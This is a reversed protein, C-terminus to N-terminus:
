FSPMTGGPEFCETGLPTTATPTLAVDDLRLWQLASVPEALTAVTSPYFGVAANAWAKTTAARMAYTNLPQGPPVWFTCALVDSFNSDVLLVTVRQRVNSSSGMRFTLGLGRDAPIATNTYQTLAGGPGTRVFELVGGTVQTQIGTVTMFWPLINGTGFTGNTLLTAPSGGGSAPATPDICDTRRDAGNSPVSTIPVYQMAVNDLLYYGAGTTTVAAAYFSITADTWVKTSHTKMRYTALPANPELTFTCVALDSFDASHILVSMRKRTAFTSGIQFTADLPGGTPVPIGTQQFVVAQTGPRYFRFVGGTVDSVMDNNPSYTLWNTTGSGFTGNRVLTTTNVGGNCQYLRVNDVAWGDSGYQDDTGIRWRFRVSQGSLSSLNLRTGTYGFSSGAFAQRGGLPNGFDSSLTGIYPQGAEVLGSADNWTTGNTSYELVGGDYYDIGDQDFDFAQDFYLYAGAPVAVANTMTVRHDSINPDSPVSASDGLDPGYLGYSGARAWGTTRSWQQGASTSSSTWNTAGSELTDLFQTASPAANTPCLPPPPVAGTCPLVLNLEVADLALQVQSCDAATIGSTGILDSCSQVLATYDDAFTSGSTLYTTLARYQVKGAKALGIGTLTRGNYTGGDVMLAFAHNPVGSNFHVGGGDGTGCWFNTSDSVRGPDGYVTPDSMNRFPASGPLLASLDEGIRWRAGASDDDIATNNLLDVTEGFIDSFSENLAGSQRRYFLNATRETVAHTLEHAVVDDARSFGDGYVMRQGNWFANEFAVGFHVTSLLTAGANDFSDRGHQGFFYDYTLGSLDYANDTDADGTASANNARVESVGNENTGNAATWVSRVKSETLQSFHDLVYGANADIWIFERLHDGTAEIFWAVRPTVFTSEWISRDYIELRPTSFVADAAVQNRGSRAGRQMRAVFGRATASADAAPVSAAVTAPLNSVVHGNAALVRAGRMHVLFEGGTVPVGQHMQQFRVHEIGVSDTTAGRRMELQGEDTVGFPVGYTRAFARARSEAPASDAMALRIGRGDTAAFRAQGGTAARQRIRLGEGGETLSAIDPVVRPQGQGTLTDTRWVLMAAVVTAALIASSFRSPTM